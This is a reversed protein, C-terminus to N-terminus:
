RLRVNERGIQKAIMQMVPVFREGFSYKPIILAWDKGWYIGITKPTVVAKQIKEWEYQKETDNQLVSIGRESFIYECPDKYQPNEQMQKKARYLLQLPTYALFIAAAALYFVLHLWTVKGMVTMMIGMFAVALGLVNSLFGSFRSYTHYLLFDFLTEKTMQVTLKEM